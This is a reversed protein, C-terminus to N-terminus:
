GFVYGNGTIYTFILCFSYNETYLTLLFQTFLMLLHTTIHQSYGNTQSM